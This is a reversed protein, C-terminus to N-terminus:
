KFSDDANVVEVWHKAEIGCCDKLQHRCSIGCAVITKGAAHAARVAPFLREEGIKKSLEFHEYGFSGAMGCCGSDVESCKVNEMRGFHSHIATTGFMAKQHCHGHLLIERASSSLSIGQEALYVDIMRVSKSVRMAAAQDDILDAVDDVLASACSPELCLIPLNQQAYRDLNAFTIAGYKKAERVLGKSLRTRQCCGANAIIVEYGVSELLQIAARGIHPEFYNAYTDDFLVVKGRSREGPAVPNSKLTQQLNRSAFPPLPRRRDIGTLKEMFRRGLPLISAFNLISAARGTLRKATDPMRGILKAGLPTGKKDYRMQLVESKLKAMDVANPCETKCAKCGLCLSMCDNVGDSALSEVPDRGLQGSMALRLANARGRTSHHEDRTAMYSPCMTGSGIKRCAGVGNCQEIALQLGGQDAYKFLATSESKAAHKQYDPAQYRINETMRDTDVIKKPNMLGIPDFLKKIDCFARYLKEGFMEPLFQGRLQGDGHEGSWSGGYEMTWRFAQTAIREMKQVEQPDHVDVAPVVHVVGASAHAYISVRYIGESHCLKEIKEIYSALHEVPIAADEIFDRGKIPGKVNSILGLGLKRTEWVDKIEKPNSFVPHAIGINEQRMSDAFQNALDTAEEPTAGMFEVVHIAQPEGLIFHSMERTAPNIRAEDMFTVDLLEVTTPSSELIRPVHRLAGLLSDFHVVCLATSQPNPTLRIKADLLIGLTGESGVILNALNWIRHGQNHSRRPGIPGVYGSGDVFEDLNYGSVRRLVRPYRANIEDRNPEIIKQLGRFLEAERQESATARSNSQWFDPERPKFHCITGDSLLVRCEIVHDITKGYVISRTGCTNNGVMGGITARSGTAPDPAFHLKHKALQGNIVDRVAGSQVRAWKEEVNVELIQNHYKSVDLIMGTGYTQGSLSTGGGRATVPLGFQRAIEVAALIDSEDKPVVVCTPMVQYLSADTAYVGRKVQDFFVDGKIRQRCADQIASQAPAPATQPLNV